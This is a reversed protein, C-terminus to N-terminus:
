QRKARGFVRLSCKTGSMGLFGYKNESLAGIAEGADEAKAGEETLSEQM